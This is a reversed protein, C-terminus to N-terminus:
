INCGLAGQSIICRHSIHTQFTSLKSVITVWLRKTPITIQNIRRRSFVMLTPFASSANFRITSIYKNSLKSMRKTFTITVNKFMSQYHLIVNSSIQLWTLLYMMFISYLSIISNFIQNKSFITNMTMKIMLLISFTCKTRSFMQRPSKALFMIPKIKKFGMPTILIKKRNTDKNPSGKWIINM